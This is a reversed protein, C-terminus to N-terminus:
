LSKRSMGKIIDLVFLGPTQKNFGHKQELVFTSYISVPLGLVISIIQFIVIFVCSKTVENISFSSQFTLLYGSYDWMLSFIGFVLFGIAKLTSYFNSVMSFKIKDLSYVRSKQFEQEDFKMEKLIKPCTPILLRKYQRWDIYTEFGYALAIFVMALDFYQVVM